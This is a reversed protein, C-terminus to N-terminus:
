QQTGFIRTKEWSKATPRPLVQMTDICVVGCSWHREFLQMWNWDFEPSLMFYWSIQLFFIDLLISPLYNAKNTKKIWLHWCSLQSADKSLNLWIAPHAPTHWPGLFLEWCTSLIFYSQRFVTIDTHVSLLRHQWGSDWRLKKAWLFYTTFQPVGARGLVKM